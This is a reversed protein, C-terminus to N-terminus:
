SQLAWPRRLELTVIRRNQGQESAISARRGIPAADALEAEEGGDDDQRQEASGREREPEDGRDRTLDRREVRRRVAVLLVAVDVGAVAV